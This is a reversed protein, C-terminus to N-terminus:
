IVVKLFTNIKFIRKKYKKSSTFSQRNQDEDLLSFEIDNVVCGYLSDKIGM